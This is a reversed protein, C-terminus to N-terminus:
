KDILKKVGTIIQDLLANRDEMGCDCETGAGENACGDEHKPCSYWSDECYHHYRVRFSELADLLVQEENKV